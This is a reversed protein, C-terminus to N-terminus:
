EEVEEVEAIEAAEDPAPLDIVGSEWADALDEGGVMLTAVKTQLDFDLVCVDGPEAGANALPKALSWLFHNRCKLVTDLMRDGFRVRWENGGILDSVFSPMNTSGATLINRNLRIACWLTGRSSWGFDAPRRSATLRDAIEEAIGPEVKAGVLTYIGKMLRAIVPSNSMYIGVTTPNMGAAICLERMRDWALVPENEKFVRVITDEAGGREIADDFPRSATVIEGSVTGLGMAVVFESLVSFPPVVELRRSKSVARRLEGLNIQPSVHLVKAVLNSLRNRAIGGVLLWRRDADLFRNKTDISMMDRFRSRDGETVGTEDCLAEFNACGRASTLRRAHRVLDRCRDLRDAYDYIRTRALWTSAIGFEIGFAECAAELGSPDFDNRSIGANRLSAAIATGTAPLNAKAVELARQLWPAEIRCDRIKRAARAALQRVRERTLGYEQGVSELIRRGRGSWGYFKLVIETDRDNVLAKLIGALEDELCDAEPIAIVVSRLAALIDSREFDHADRTVRAAEKDWDTLMTGLPLDLKELKVRIEEVSNRGCNQLRLLDAATKGALDGVFEVGAVALANAARRSLNLEHVRLHLKARTKEDLDAMSKGVPSDPVDPFPTEPPTWTGSSSGLRLGFRDLVFKVERITKVGCNPLALLSAETWSVLDGLFRINANKFVNTTRVSLDLQGVAISLATSPSAVASRLKHDDIAMLM